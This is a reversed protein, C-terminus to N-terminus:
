KNKKHQELESISKKITESFNLAAQKSLLMSHQQKHIGKFLINWAAAVRDLFNNFVPTWLNAYITMEILQTDDANVEIWVDLAHDASTCECEVHYSKYTDTDSTQSIGEAPRQYEIDM